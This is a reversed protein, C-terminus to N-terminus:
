KELQTTFFGVFIMPILWTLWIKEVEQVVPFATLTFGISLSGLGSLKNGLLVGYFVWIEM